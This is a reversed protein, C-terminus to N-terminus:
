IMALTTKVGADILAKQIEVAAEKPYAEMDELAYEQDMSAYKEKGLEHYPILEVQTFVPGLEEAFAVLRELEDETDTIGKMLVWRLSLKIHDSHKDRIYRAFDKATAM